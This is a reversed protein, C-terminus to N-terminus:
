DDKVEDTKGTDLEVGGTYNEAALRQKEKEILERIYKENDEQPEQESEMKIKAITVVEYVCIATMPIIVAIFILKRRSTFSMIWRLFRVKGTYKGVVKDPSVVTDDASSNADGKTLFSGDDNVALIRHTNLKGKIQPDDSYFSIIDGYQLSATNVKEITIYDGSHISPEMSGTVVRLVSRGFFSAVKGNSTCIVAYITTCVLIVIAVSTLIESMKKIINFINRIKERM